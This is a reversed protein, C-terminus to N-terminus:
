YRVEFAVPRPHVNENLEEIDRTDERPSEANPLKLTSNPNLTEFLVEVKLQWGERVKGFLATKVGHSVKYVQTWLLRASIDLSQGYRASEVAIPEQMPDEGAQPEEGPLLEPPDRSSYVPSHHKKLLGTRLTSVGRGANTSIRLCYCENEGEQIILFWRAPAVRPAGTKSIGDVLDTIETADDSKGSSRRSSSEHANTVKIIYAFTSWSIDLLFIGEMSRSLTKHVRGGEDMQSPRAQQGAHPRGSNGERVAGISAQKEGILTKCDDLARMALKEFHDIM